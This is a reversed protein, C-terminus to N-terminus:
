PGPPSWTQLEVINGEPDTMYCVTITAEDGLALTIIRGLARGGAELVAERASAVDAVAFAIHGYGQRNLAPAAKKRGPAYEFIELTPGRDGHGPLRLHMGRLRAGPINTLAELPGGHFDREPPVPTCGFVERYFHALKRWDRAVLNTHVYRAELSM